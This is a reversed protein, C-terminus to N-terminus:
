SDRVSIKLDKERYVYRVAGGSTKVGFRQKEEATM